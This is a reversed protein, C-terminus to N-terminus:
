SMSKLLVLLYHFLPMPGTRLPGLNLLTMPQADRLLLIDQFYYLTILPSIYIDFDFILITYERQNCIANYSFPNACM